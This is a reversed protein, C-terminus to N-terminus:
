SFIQYFNKSFGLLQVLRCLRYMVHDVPLTVTSAEALLKWDKVEQREVVVMGNGWEVAGGGNGGGCGVLM